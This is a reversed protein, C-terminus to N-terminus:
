HNQNLQWQLIEITRWILLEIYEIHITTVSGVDNDRAGDFWDRTLREKTLLLDKNEETM